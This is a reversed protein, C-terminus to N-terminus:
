ASPSDIKSLAAAFGAFVDAGSSSGWTLLQDIAELGPQDGAVLWDLANILRLDALGRAACEILNACLTTTRQYAAAVVQQNFSGPNWGPFLSPEWRNVALLYGIVFDDGSPTLGPGAGLMRILLDPSGHKWPEAVMNLIHLNFQSLQDREAQPQLENNVLFQLLGAFVGPQKTDMIRQSAAALRTQIEISILSSPPLSKPTWAGIGHLTIVLDAGAFRIEEKEITVRLGPNLQFDAGPINITLPGQYSELSLFLLWRSPTNIFVGRSTVGQVKGSTERHINELAISGISSASFQQPNDSLNPDITIAAM